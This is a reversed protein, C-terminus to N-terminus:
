PALVTKIVGETKKVFYIKQNELYDVPGNERNRVPQFDFDNFIVYNKNNIHEMFRPGYNALLKAYRLTIEYGRYAMDGPRGNTFEKYRTIFQESQEANSTSTTFPTGYWVDVGKYEPKNFAVTEWTPMGFVVTAYTPSFTSLMRVIRQAQSTNLTPAIIVNIRNSDLLATLSAQLRADEAEEPLPTEKWKLPLGRTNQNADTLYQRLRAEAAGPANLMILNDIAHHRQIFRHLQQCHVKLTSNIIMLNPYSTMGAENPLLSILPVRAPRLKEAIARFEAASQAASIVIGTGEYTTDRFLAELYDPSKTDVVRIRAPIGQMELEDAAIKVGNYFELGNLIYPPINNGFQYKGDIFASDLYLPVLITTRPKTKVRLSDPQALLHSFPITGLFFVTLSLIWHKLM